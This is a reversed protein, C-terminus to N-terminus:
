EPEIELNVALDKPPNVIVVGVQVDPQFLSIRKDSGLTKMSMVGKDERRLANFVLGGRVILEQEEASIRGLEMFKKANKGMARLIPRTIAVTGGQATTESYGARMLAEKIPMGANLNEAAQRQRQNIHM